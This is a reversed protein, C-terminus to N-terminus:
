FRNIVGRLGAYNETDAFARQTESISYRHTVIPALDIKSDSALEAAKTMLAPTCGFSGIVSFQNYHVRNIDIQPLHGQPMGAFLNIVSNKGAFKEAVEIAMPNSTAVVIFDAYSGNFYEVMSRLASGDEQFKVVCGAGIERARQMRSEIKGVVCVRSDPVQKILELHMLGIPGDGIIVVNPQHAREIGMRNVSNLCCALPELLAAQEDTLSSPVPILGGIRVVNDPIEIFEALGGNVTSGIEQLNFCMNYQEKKCMRCELCPVQPYVAVRTGASIEGGRTKASDVLEACIEHGLIVPPKVKRHGHRYVRVDYGCVACAKVRARTGGTPSKVSTVNLANPGSFVAAQM